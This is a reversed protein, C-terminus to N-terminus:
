SFSQTVYYENRYKMSQGNKIMESLLKLDQVENGNEDVPYPGSMGSIGCLGLHKTAEKIAEHKSSGETVEAFSTGELTVIGKVGESKWSVVSVAM